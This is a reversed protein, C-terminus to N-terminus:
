LLHLLTEGQAIKNSLGQCIGRAHCNVCYTLQSVKTYLCVAIIISVSKVFNGGGPNPKVLLAGM